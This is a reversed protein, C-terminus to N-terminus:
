TRPQFERRRALLLLLFYGAAFFSLYGVANVLWLVPDRDALHFFWGYGHAVGGVLNWLYFGFELVLYFILLYYGAARRALLLAFSVLFLALVGGLLLTSRLEPLPHQPSYYLHLFYPVQAVFNALLVAFLVWVQIWITKNMIRFPRLVTVNKESM